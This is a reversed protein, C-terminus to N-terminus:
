QALHPQELVCARSHQSRYLMLERSEKIRRRRVIDLGSSCQIMLFIMARSRYSMGDELRGTQGKSESTM